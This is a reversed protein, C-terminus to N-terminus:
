HGKKKEKKHEKRLQFKRAEEAEREAKERQKREQAKREREAALAEAAEEKPGGAQELLRKLERQRRKYNGEHAAPPREPIPESFVLGCYQYLVAQRIMEANPERGFIIKAASYGREDFREFIGVWYPTEFTVTFCGEIM